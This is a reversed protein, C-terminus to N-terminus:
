GNALGKMDCAYAVWRGHHSLSLSADLREGDFCLKPIREDRTIEVRDVGVDLHKAVAERALRRVESGAQAPPDCPAVGRVVHAFDGTNRAALAHVRDNAPELIVMFQGSTHQVPMFVEAWRLDSHVEFARPSFVTSPDEQKAVKYCAEKAAWYQWRTSRGLEDCAIGEREEDRFVREDFRDRYTAIDADVDHLDVVDNGVM